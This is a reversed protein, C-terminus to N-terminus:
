FLLKLLFDDLLGVFFSSIPFSGAVLYHSIDKSQLIQDSANMLFFASM